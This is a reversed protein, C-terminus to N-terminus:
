GAARLQAEIKMLDSRLYEPWRETALNGAKSVGELRSDGVRRSFDRLSTYREGVRELLGLLEEATDRYGSLVARRAKAQEVERAQELREQLEGRARHSLELQAGAKDRAKVAQRERDALVDLDAQSSEGLELLVELRAREKRCHDIEQVARGHQYEADNVKAEYAALQKTITQVQNMLKEM